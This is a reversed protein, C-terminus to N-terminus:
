SRRKMAAALLGRLEGLFDEGRRTRQVL